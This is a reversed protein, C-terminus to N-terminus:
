QVDQSADLSTFNYTGVVQILHFFFRWMMLNCHYCCFDNFKCNILLNKTEVFACLKSFVIIFTRNSSKTGTNLSRFEPGIIKLHTGVAKLPNTSLEDYIFM